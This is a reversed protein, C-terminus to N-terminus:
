PGRANAAHSAAGTLLDGPVRHATISGTAVPPVM